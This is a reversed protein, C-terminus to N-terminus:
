NRPPDLKRRLRFVMNYALIGLAIGSMILLFGKLEDGDERKSGATSEFLLILSTSAVVWVIVGIIKPATKSEENSINQRRVAEVEAIRKSNLSDINELSKKIDTFAQLCGIINTYSNDHHRKTKTTNYREQIAAFLNPSHALSNIKLSSMWTEIEKELNHVIRVESIRKSNLAELNVVAKDIDAFSQLCECAHTYSSYYPQKAKTAECNAKVVAFEASSFELSNTQSQQMKFEIESELNSIAKRMGEIQLKTAEESFRIAEQGSTKATVAGLLTANAYGVEATGLARRAKTYQQGAREIAQWAQMKEDSRKAEEILKAAQDRLELRHVELFQDVRNQHQKFDADGLAKFLYKLEIVIARRLSPIADDSKDQHMLIKALQFHAEAFDPNLSIAQQTYDLAQELRGQCFAAWGAAACAVSAEKPFDKRAYRTANNFAEEAKPLDLIGHAKEDRVDGLYLTGLTYHFRFETKYGTNDGFGNIARTLAEFAEPYLERRICDKAIEFQNYAWTQAPTKAIAVLQKLSDNVCGIDSIMRRFGWFLLRNGEAVGKSVEQIDLSIMEFGDDLSESLEDFEERMEGKLVDFEERNAQQLERTSSELVQATKINQQGLEELTGVMERSHRSIALPVEKVSNTVADVFVGNQLYKRRFDREAGHYGTLGFDTDSIYRNSM